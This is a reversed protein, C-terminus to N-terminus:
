LNDFYQVESHRISGRYSPVAAKKRTMRARREEEKREEKKLEVKRM